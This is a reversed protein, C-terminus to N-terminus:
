GRERTNADPNVIETAENVEKDTAIEPSETKGKDIRAEEYSKFDEANNEKMDM